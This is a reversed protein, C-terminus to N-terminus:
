GVIALLINIFSVEEFEVLMGIGKYKILQFSYKIIVFALFYKIVRKFYNVVEGKNMFVSRLLKKYNLQIPIKEFLLEEKNLVKPLSVVLEEASSITCNFQLGSSIRLM